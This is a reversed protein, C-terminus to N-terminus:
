PDEVEEDRVIKYGFGRVNVIQFGSETERLVKRLKWVSSYLDRDSVIGLTGDQKEAM